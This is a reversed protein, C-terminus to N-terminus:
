LVARKDKGKQRTDDKRGYICIGKEFTLCIGVDGLLSHTNKTLLISVNRCLVSRYM